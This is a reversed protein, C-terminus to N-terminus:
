IKQMKKHVGRRRLLEMFGCALLAGGSNVAIDALEFSRKLSPLQQLLEMGLGYTTCALWLLVCSRFAKNKKLDPDLAFFAASCLVFYLGFHVIKDFYIKQLFPFSPIDDGPMLSLVAVM